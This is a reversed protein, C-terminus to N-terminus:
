LGFLAAIADVGVVGGGGIDALGPDVDFPPTFSDIYGITGDVDDVGLQAIGPDTFVIGYNDTGLYYLDLDYGQYGLLNDVADTSTNISFTESYGDFSYPGYTTVDAPDASAVPGVSLAILPPALLAGATMGVGMRRRNGSMKYGWDEQSKPIFISLNDQM